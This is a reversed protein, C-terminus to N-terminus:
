PFACKLAEIVPKWSERTRRIAPEQEIHIFNGPEPATKVSKGCPDNREGNSFRGQVNTSAGLPCGDKKGEYIGAEVNNKTMCEFLKKSNSTVTRTGSSMFVNPCVDRDTMGHFQVAVTNPNNIVLTEHVTQFMTATNHAVDSEPYDTTDSDPNNASAPKTCPTEKKNARRHAGAMLFARAGTQLFADVAELETRLDAVTHPAQIVLPNKSTLDFVYLGWGAQQPSKEQLLVYERNTTKDTFLTLNYPYSRSKIDEAATELRNNLINGIIKQWTKQQAQNPARYLDSDKPFQNKAAQEVREYLSGREKKIEFATSTKNEVAVVVFFLGLGLVIALIQKM